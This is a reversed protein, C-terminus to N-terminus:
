IYAGFFGLNVSLISLVSFEKKVNEISDISEIYQTNKDSTISYLNIESMLEVFVINPIYM